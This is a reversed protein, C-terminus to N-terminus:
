KDTVILEASNNVRVGSERLDSRRNKRVDPGNAIEESIPEEFYDETMALNSM